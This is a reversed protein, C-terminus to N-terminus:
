RRREDQPAPAALPTVGHCVRRQATVVALTFLFRAQGGRRTHTSTPEREAVRWSDGFSLAPSSPQRPADRRHHAPCFPVPQM